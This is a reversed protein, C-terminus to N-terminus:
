KVKRLLRYYIVTGNRNGDDLTMVIDGKKVFGVDKMFLNVGWLEQYEKNEPNDITVYQGSLEFNPTGDKPLIDFVEILEKSTLEDDSSNMMSYVKRNEDFYFWQYPLPWPNVKNMESKPWKIMKWTGILQEITPPGGADSNDDAQKNIKEDVKSKDLIKKQSTCASISFM